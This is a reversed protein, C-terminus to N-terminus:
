TMRVNKETNRKKETLITTLRINVENLLSLGTSTERERPRQRERERERERAQYGEPRGGAM